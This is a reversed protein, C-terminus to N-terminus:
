YGYADPSRLERLAAGFSQLSANVQAYQQANVGGPTRSAEMAARVAQLSALVDAVRAQDEEAPASDQLRYLLQTLDDARRQIDVWRVEADASQWTEQLGALSIADYLASGRASADAAQSRWAATRASRQRSHRTIVVAVIVIVIVLLVGLLIWLWLLSSASNSPPQSSGTGPPAAPSPTATATVTEHVTAPATPSAPTRTPSFTPSFAPRSPSPSSDGPSPSTTGSALANKINAGHACGATLCGAAIIALAPLLLRTPRNM